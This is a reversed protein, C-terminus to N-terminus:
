KQPKNFSTFTAFMASFHGKKKKKFYAYLHISELLYIYINNFQSNELPLPSIAQGQSAEINLLPKRIQVITFPFLGLFAHFLGAFGSVIYIFTGKFLDLVSFVNLM